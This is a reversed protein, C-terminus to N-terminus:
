RFYVQIYIILNDPFKFKVMSRCFPFFLRFGRNKFEEEKQKDFFKPFNSGGVGKSGSGHRYGMSISKFHFHYGNMCPRIWFRWQRPPVLSWHLQLSWQPAFRRFPSPRPPPWGRGCTPPGPPRGRFKKSFNCWFPANQTCESIILVRKKCLFNIHFFHTESFKVYLSNMNTRWFKSFNVDCHHM